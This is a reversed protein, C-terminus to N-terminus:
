AAGFPFADVIRALPEGSVHRPELSRFRVFRCFRGMVLNVICEIGDGFDDM